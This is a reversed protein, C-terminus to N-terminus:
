EAQNEHEGEKPIHSCNDTLFIDNWSVNLADVIRAAVQSTLLKKMNEIKNMHYHDIGIKDALQAQSLGRKMRLQKVNNKLM